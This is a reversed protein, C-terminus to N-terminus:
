SPDAAHRITEVAAILTGRRAGGDAFEGMRGLYRFYLSRLQEARLRAHLYTRHSGRQRAVFTLAGVAAGTVAVLFGPWAVDSLAAQVAGLVTTASGGVFILLQQRRFRNQERRARRDLELFAPVLEEHLFTFDDALTPYRKHDEVPVPPMVTTDGEWLRPVRRLVAWRLSAM